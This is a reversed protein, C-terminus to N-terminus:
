PVVGSLNLYGHKLSMGTPLKRKKSKSGKQKQKQKELKEPFTYLWNRRCLPCTQSNKNMKKWKTACSSHFNNGCWDKCWITEQISKMSDYCISCDSDEEFSKRYVKTEKCFTEDKEKVKEKVKEKEGQEHQKEDQNQRIELLAYEQIKKQIATPARVNQSLKEGIPNKSFIHELNTTTWEPKQLLLKQDDNEPSIKLIKIFIFLLHKCPNFDDPCNCYHTRGIKVTYLNNTTGLIQYVRLHPTEQEQSVVFISQNLARKIREEHGRVPGLRHEYENEEDCSEESQESEEEQEEESVKQDEQLIEAIKSDNESM